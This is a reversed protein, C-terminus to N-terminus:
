NKAGEAVAEAAAAPAAEEAAAQGELFELYCVDAADGIRQGLRLIRTYGGQRDKFRPALDDFVLKVVDAHKLISIAQRRAHLTGRKGLTIIKEALRRVEKAKTVTTKIRGEMILSSVM